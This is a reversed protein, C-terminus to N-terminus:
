LNTHSNNKQCCFRIRHLIKGLIMFIELVGNKRNIHNVSLGTVPYEHFLSCQNKSNCNHISFYLIVGQVGGIGESASYYISGCIITGGIATASACPTIIYKQYKIANMLVVM